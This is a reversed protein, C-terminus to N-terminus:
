ISLKGYSERVRDSGYQRELRRVIFHGRAMDQFHKIFVTNVLAGGAAGIAPVAMAAAKETVVVGFRSSISSILRVLAPAGKRVAGQKALYRAADSVAGALASRVAFYGTDAGDDGTSRGGLAFVELCSLQTEVLQIDEGETRAIDAISRLMIATSVPLELLLGALGFAGGGAGTAAAAYRHLRNRAPGESSRISKVAVNLAQELSVKVAKEIRGAWKEPLLGFGKEIPTGIADTLRAALSPRELLSKAYRLQELDQTSIEIPVLEMNILYCFDLRFLCVLGQQRGLEIDGSAAMILCHTLNLAGM